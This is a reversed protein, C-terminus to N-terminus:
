AYICEAYSYIVAVNLIVVSLFHCEAYSYIVAVNLIVVSLFHCETYLARISLIVTIDNLKKDNNNTVNLKPRPAQYRVPYKKPRTRLVLNPWIILCQM